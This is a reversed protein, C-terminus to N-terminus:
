VDKNRCTRHYSASNNELTNLLDKGVSFLKLREIPLGNRAKCKYVKCKKAKQVLVYKKQILDRVYLAHALEMEKSEMM